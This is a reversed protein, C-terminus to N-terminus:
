VDSHILLASKFYEVFKEHNEKSYRTKENLYYYFYVVKNMFDVFICKNKEITPMNQYIEKIDQYEKHLENFMTFLEEFEIIDRLPEEYELFYQYLNRYLPLEKLIDHYRLSERQMILIFQSYKLQMVYPPLNLENKKFFERLTFYFSDKDDVFYEAYIEFLKSEQDKDLSDIKLEIENKSTKKREM